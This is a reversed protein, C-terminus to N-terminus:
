TIVEILEIKKVNNLNLEQLNISYNNPYEYKKFDRDKGDM